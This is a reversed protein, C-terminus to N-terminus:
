KAVEGRALKVEGTLWAVDVNWAATKASLQVRGGTSAGDPFFMIAGVGQTPQVERAGTFVIAFQKSIEGDRTNPARWVHAAPDILFRQARGTAIAQARTYRLQAAIEKADSRLRAGTFGNTAAAAALLSVAAIIALVVLMEILTFGRVAAGSARRISGRRGTGHM